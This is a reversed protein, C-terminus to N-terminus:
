VTAPISQGQTTSAVAQGFGAGYPVSLMVDTLGSSSLCVPSSMPSCTSVTQTGSNSTASLVAFGAGGAVVIVAVLVVIATAM